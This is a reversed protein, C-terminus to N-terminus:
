WRLSIGTPQLSLLPSKLSNSLADSNLAAQIPQVMKFPTLEGAGQQEEETKPVIELVDPRGSGSIKIHSLKNTETSELAPMISTSIYNEFAYDRAYSVTSGSLLLQSEGEVQRKYVDGSFSGGCRAACRPSCM